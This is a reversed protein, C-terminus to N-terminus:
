NAKFDADLIAIVKADGVATGDMKVTSIGLKAAVEKATAEQSEDVYLVASTTYDSQINSATVDTFGASKLTEASRGASGAAAPNSLNNYIVITASMDAQPKPAPKEEEAPKNEDAKNKDEGEAKNADKNEGGAEGAKDSQSQNQTSAHSDDVRNVIFAYAGWALLPGVILAVLFPLFQKWRPQHARHVGIPMDEAAEDFEDPEYQKESM